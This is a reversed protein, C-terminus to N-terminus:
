EDKILQESIPMNVVASLVPLVSKPNCVIVRIADAGGNEDICELEADIKYPVGPLLLPVHYLPQKLKYLMANFNFTVALHTVSKGGTNQVNLKLKFKPGLGQVQATMRLSSGASYSMPGQGDSIIKVYARATSLRLKCLDRQFVRHMETAQERERQTQEVYLKTKKPISLPVDQEPPPGPPRAAGDLDAQRQMMKITLSGADGICILAAEERGYAGFRLATISHGLQLTAVLSKEHYLRVEGTNLGVLLARLNRTKTLTLVEMCAIPAPVYLSYQRKGKIHFAHVTNSMCGVLVSKDIRCLACPMAELEIVNGTVEGNKITYVNGDRCACVVRYDVSCAPSVSSPPCRPLHERPDVLGGRRPRAGAEGRHRRRADVGRRMTWRKRLVEMCTATQQSLKKGACAAVYAGGRRGGRDRAPGAVTRRSTAATARRASRRARRASRSRARTCRGVDREEGVVVLPLSFKYYPRLNRYIFVFPGAAVGVSPAKKADPYFVCVSVPAALLMNESLLTTGKYIKLRKDTGAVLLKSEGDGSLDALRVCSTFSKLGAVPDHWAHLWIKKARAEESKRAAEM